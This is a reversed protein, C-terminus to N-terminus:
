VLSAKQIKVNCVEEQSQPLATGLPQRNISQATIPLVRGPRAVGPDQRGGRRSGGKAKVPPKTFLLEMLSPRDAPVLLSKKSASSSLAYSAPVGQPTIKVAGSMLKHSYWLCCGQVSQLLLPSMYNTCAPSLRTCAQRAKGSSLQAVAETDDWYDQAPLMFLLQM